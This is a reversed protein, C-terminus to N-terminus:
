TKNFFRPSFNSFIILFLSAALIIENENAFFLTYIAFLIAIKKIRNTGFFIEKLDYVIWGALLLLLLEM